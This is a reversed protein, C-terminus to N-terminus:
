TPFSTSLSFPQNRHKPSLYFVKKEAKQERWKRKFAAMVCKDHRKSSKIWKVVFRCVSMKKQKTKSKVKLNNGQMNHLWVSLKLSKRKITGM